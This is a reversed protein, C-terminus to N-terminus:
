TAEGQRVAASACRRADLPLVVSVRAGRGIRSEIQLRGGHRAVWHRSVALGLGTGEPRTTFFPTALRDLIEPAIGPGDDEFVVAITPIPRGDEGILRHQLTMGTTITLTGGAEGM